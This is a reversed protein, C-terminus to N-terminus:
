LPNKIELDYFFTLESGLCELCPGVIEVSIPSDRPSEKGRTRGDYM